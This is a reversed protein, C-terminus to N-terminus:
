IYQIPKIIVDSVCHKLFPCVVFLGHSFRMRIAVFSEVPNTKDWLTGQEETSVM